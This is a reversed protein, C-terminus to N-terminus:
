TRLQQGVGLRDQLLGRADLSALLFHFYLLGEYPHWRSLLKCAKEYDPTKRLGLWKHLNKQGAVDDGPFVNLRGLGRLMNELIEDLGRKFDDLDRFPSWSRFRTM